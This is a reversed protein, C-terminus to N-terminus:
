ISNTNQTVNDRESQLEGGGVWGNTRSRRHFLIPITCIQISVLCISFFFFYPFKLVIKSSPTKVGNEGFCNPFHANQHFIISFNMRNFPLWKSVGNTVKTRTFGVSHSNHDLLFSIGNASFLRLFRFELKSQDDCASILAIARLWVGNPHICYVPPYMVCCVVCRNFSLWDVM